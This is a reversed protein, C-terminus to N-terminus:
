DKINAQVYSAHDKHIRGNLYDAKISEYLRSFFKEAVTVIKEPTGSTKRFTAKNSGYAMYKNDPNTLYYNRWAELTVSEPIDNESVNFKDPLELRLCVMMMDNGCRGNPSIHCDITISNGLCKYIEVACHGKPFHKAYAKIIEERFEAFKM